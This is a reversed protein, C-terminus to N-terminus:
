SLMMAWRPSSGVGHLLNWGPFCSSLASSSELIASEIQDLNLDNTSGCKDKISLESHHAKAEVLLLGKGQRSSQFTSVVDWNPTRASTRKKLWWNLLTDKELPTLFQKTIGLLAEDPELFGKPMWTDRDPDIIGHPKIMQQLTEVSQIKSGATMMLCRLRSGKFKRKLFYVRKKDSDTIKNM